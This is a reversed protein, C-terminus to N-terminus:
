SLIKNKLYTYSKTISDYVPIKVADQEVFFYEMGSIKKCKFIEKYNITGSGVETFEKEPTNAMDKVHWMKFRGKHEKMLKAPNLGAKSVWYIDMEFNVLSADTETALINFGTQGNGWDKFEFDHNHYALKMGASKAEEAARNLKKALKKYDDLSTRLDPELFPITFFQHGMKAADAVTKKLEEEDGKSLFNIMTYHGSPTVLNNQKLVASFAEPTLGFFKGAGYGFLEVSNYGIEAVKAITAKVDKTIESRVTYLQLGILQDKALFNKPSIILSASLVGTHKLFTRRNIM